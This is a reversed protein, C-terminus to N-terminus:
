QRGGLKEVIIDEIYTARPIRGRTEELRQYADDYLYVSIEHKHCKM